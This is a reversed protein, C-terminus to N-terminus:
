RGLSTTSKARSFKPRSLPSMSAMLREHRGWDDPGSAGGKEEPMQVNVSLTLGVQTKGSGYAGFAETIARTSIGRGGLLEDFSKSGFTIYSIDERKKAYEVGDQFGLDLMDRAAQIAKRAVSESMGSTESLQAPTLVALGMLDYIGAAELKAVAGPGVGPLDILEPGKEERTKKKTMKEEEEVIEEEAM